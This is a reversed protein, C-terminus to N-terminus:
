DERLLDEIQSLTPRGSSKVEQARRQSARTKELAKRWDGWNPFDDCPTLGFVRCSEVYMERAFALGSNTVKRKSAFIESSENFQMDYVYRLVSNLEDDSLNLRVCYGLFNEPHGGEKFFLDRLGWLFPKGNRLFYRERVQSLYEPIQRRVEGDLTFMPEALKERARKSLDTEQYTQEPM